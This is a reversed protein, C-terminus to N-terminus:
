MHQVTVVSDTVLYKYQNTYIPFIVVSDTIDLYERINSMDM